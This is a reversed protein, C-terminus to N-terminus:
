QLIRRLTATPFGTVSSIAAVPGSCLAAPCCRLARRTCTHHSM